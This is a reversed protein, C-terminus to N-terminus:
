AHRMRKPKLRRRQLLETAPNDWVGTKPILPM